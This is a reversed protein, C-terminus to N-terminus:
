RLCMTVILEGKISGFMLSAKILLSENSLLMWTFM